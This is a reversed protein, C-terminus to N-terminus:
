HPLTTLFTTLTKHFTESQDLMAFHRAPTLPLVTAHPAGALLSKYFALTQDQTYPSKDAPNYPMLELIPLTINKLTPRLDTTLDEKTWAAIAVPDSQALHKAARDVLDPSITGVTRMYTTQADLLAAPSLAATPATSQAALQSRQDPTANALTPFVPLGDIAILAALRDPHEAALAFGLTGGLSHGIVVPKEINRTALLQWFDKTFTAFLPSRTTAPHGDFGPLTLVYLTHTPALRTVTDAWVWPGCALGPILILPQPGAGFHDVHLTGVTFSDTPKPLEPLADAALVPKALLAFLALALFIQRM